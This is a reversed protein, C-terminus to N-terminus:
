EKKSNQEIDLVCQCKESIMGKQTQRPLEQMKNAHKKTRESANETVKGYFHKHLANSLSAESSEFIHIAKRSIDRFIWPYIRSFRM